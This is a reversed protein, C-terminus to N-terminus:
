INVLECAKDCGCECNSPNWIFWKDCAGKDILEKCECWCKNKIGVNNIIVFMLGLNVSVYVRKAGQKM